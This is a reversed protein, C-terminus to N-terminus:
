FTTSTDSKLVQRARHIRSKITGLNLGLHGAIEEYTFENIAYLLFCERLRPSLTQIARNLQTQQERAFYQQDPRLKGDARRLLIDDSQSTPRRSQYRIEDIVLNRIITGFWAAFTQTPQYSEAKQYVRLWAEQSVTQATDLNRSFRVALNLSLRHYRNYLTQFADHDGRAICTLLEYDTMPM